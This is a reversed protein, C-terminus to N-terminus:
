HEHFEVQTLGMLFSEEIGFVLKRDCSECTYGRADPECGDSLEGCGACVGAYEDRLHRYETESMKVKFFSGGKKGTFAVKEM